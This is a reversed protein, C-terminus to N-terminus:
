NYICVFARGTDSMVFGTGNVNCSGTLSERSIVKEPETLGQEICHRCVSQNRMKWNQPQELVRAWM